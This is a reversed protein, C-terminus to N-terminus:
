SSVRHRIIQESNLLKVTSSVKEKKEKKEKGRKRREDDSNGSKILPDKVCPPPSNVCPGVWGRIDREGGREQERSSCSKGDGVPHFTNRLLFKEIDKFIVFINM